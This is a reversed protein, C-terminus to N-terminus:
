LAYRGRRLRQLRPSCRVPGAPCHSKRSVAHHEGGLGGGANRLIRPIRFRPRGRSVM